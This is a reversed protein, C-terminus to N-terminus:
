QSGEKVGAKWHRIKELCAEYDFTPDNEPDHCARCTKEEVRRAISDRTRLAAHLAGDGHCAACHVGDFALPQAPSFRQTRRFAESHCRLCESVLRDKEQLTRVAQHHKSKM